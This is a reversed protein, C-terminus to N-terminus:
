DLNRLVIIETNVVLVIVLIEVIFYASGIITLQHIHSFVLLITFCCYSINALILLRLWPKIKAKVFLYCSASYISLGIAITVLGIVIDSPMGFVENVVAISTLCVASLSAGSGDIMFIGKPNNSLWDFLKWM